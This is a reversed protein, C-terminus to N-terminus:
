IDRLAIGLMSVLSQKTSELHEIRLLLADVSVEKVPQKNSQSSYNENKLFYKGDEETAKLTGLSRTIAAAFQTKHKRPYGTRQISTVLDKLALGNPNNQLVEMVLPRLKQRKISSNKHTRGKHVALSHASPFHKNCLTCLELIENTKM